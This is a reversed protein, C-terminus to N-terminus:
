REARGEDLLAQATGAPAAPEFSPYAAPDHGTGLRVAGSQALEHLGTPIELLAPAPRLAAVVRGGDTVLVGEGARVLKLYKRLNNKLDKVKVAEM